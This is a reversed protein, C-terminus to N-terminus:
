WKHFDKQLVWCLLNDGRHFGRAGGALSDETDKIKEYFGEEKVDRRVRM